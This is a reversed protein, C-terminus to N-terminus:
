PATSNLIWADMRAQTCIACTHTMAPQHTTATAAFNGSLAPYHKTPTTTYVELPAGDKLKTRDAGKVQALWIQASLFPLFLASSVKVSVPQRM